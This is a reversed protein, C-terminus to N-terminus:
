SVYFSLTLFSVKKNSYYYYYNFDNTFGPPIITNDMGGVGIAPPSADGEGGGPDVGRTGLHLRPTGMPTTDARCRFLLCCQVVISRTWLVDFDVTRGQRWEGVCLGTSTSVGMLDVCQGGDCRANNANCLKCNLPCEASVACLVTHVVGEGIEDM